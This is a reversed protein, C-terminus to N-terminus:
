LEFHVSEVSQWLEEVTVFKYGQQQLLPILQRAIQAVNEGGCTGDHLVILAGPAVHQLVRQVVVEVGPSVWDEPVVSWMVPRYHWQHLQHLTQSTFLGNPPRVDRIRDRTEEVTLGCATAIAAQTQELSQELQKASLCPFSRHDYGHLGIWHGREYVTRAVAPSRNVCAGLWFFSAPISYNDLIDLLQFTWQPHPGDDFTLAIQRSNRSGSWLCNPFTPKLIKYLVPYLPYFAPM